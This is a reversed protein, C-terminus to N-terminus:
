VCFSVYQKAKLRWIWRHVLLCLEDSGAAFARGIEDCNIVLQKYDKAAGVRNQINAPRGSIFLVPPNEGQGSEDKENEMKTLNTRSNAFANKNTGTKDEIGAYYNKLM